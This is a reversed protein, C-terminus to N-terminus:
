EKEFVIYIIKGVSTEIEQIFKNKASKLARTLDVNDLYVPPTMKVDELSKDFYQLSLGVITNLVENPLEQSMGEKDTKNFSKPILTSSMFDKIENSFLIIVSGDFGDYLDIQAYNKDILVNTIQKISKIELKLSDKLFIETQMLINDCINEFKKDNTIYKDRTINLPIYFTFSIGSGLNNKISCKANLKELNDKIVGMGIGVGSVMSIDEKTSLKDKFILKCKDEQSMLEIEEKTILAKEIASLSLEKTDIGAGDDSIQIILMNSIIEFSCKISGVEDKGLSIRTEIDEIGHDASNNFIHVLSKIFPKFRSDIKINEDGKIELPYIEKELISSLQKVHSIFPTLMHKLSEHKLKQVKTLIDNLKKQENTSLTKNFSLLSSEIDDISDIDVNISKASTLFDDGLTSKIIALDKQFINQLDAKILISIINEDACLNRIKKEVELIYTTIHLMEKQAFIGKFTHLERLIDRIITFSTADSLNSINSIFREFDDKLEIFDNKDSAVAVIMKQIQYQDSLKSKLNKANTIDSLIVMYRNKKLNKYEIKISKNEVIEEKPLLSLFMEKIYDDEANCARSIGDIFLEKNSLNKSFLLNSIDLGEIDKINFIRKCEESYSSQCKLNEDFSLFGQGANDLLDHVQQKLKIEERLIGFQKYGNLLIFFLFVVVLLVSLYFINQGNLLFVAILGLMQITVFLTFIHFISVLSIMSAAAVSAIIMGALLLHIDNGYMFSMWAFLAYLVSSFSILFSYIYLHSSIKKRFIIRTLFILVHLSLWIYLQATPIINYFSLVILIPVLINGTIAGSINGKTFKSILEPPYYILCNKM